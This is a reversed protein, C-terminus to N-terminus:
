WGGVLARQDQQYDIDDWDDPVAALVEHELLWEAASTRRENHELEMALLARFHEHGTADHSEALTRQMRRLLPSGHAEVDFPEVYPPRVMRAMVLAGDGIPLRELGPHRTVPLRRQNELAM